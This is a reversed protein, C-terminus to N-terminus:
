FYSTKKKKKAREADTSALYNTLMRHKSSEGVELFMTDSIDPINNYVTRLLAETDGQESNPSFFQHHNIHSPGRVNDPPLPTPKSM